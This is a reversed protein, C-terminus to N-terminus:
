YWIIQPGNEWRIAQRLDITGDGTCKAKYLPMMCVHIGKNFDSITCAGPVYTTLQRIGRM